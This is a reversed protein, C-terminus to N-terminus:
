WVNWVIDHPVSVEYMGEPTEDPLQCEAIDLAKWAFPSLRKMASGCM